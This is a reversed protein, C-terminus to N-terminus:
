QKNKLLDRIETLLAVDAPPAAPAEEKKQQLRNMLKIVMFIAFAVILFTIITNIFSGYNIAVEAIKHKPDSDDAAKLVWKMASFDVGGTLAGIPPMIVDSVLSSVIKGFAGGIVIGVAMDMVNGRMAFAKFEQLMSM